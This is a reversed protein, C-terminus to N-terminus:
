LSVHYRSAFRRARVFGTLIPTDEFPPHTAFAQHTVPLFVSRHKAADLAVRPAIIKPLVYRANTLGSDGGIWPGGPKAGPVGYATALGLFAWFGVLVNWCGDRFAANGPGREVWEWNEGGPVHSVSFRGLTEGVSRPEFGRPGRIAFFLARAGAPSRPEKQAGREQAGFV